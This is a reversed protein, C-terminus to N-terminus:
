LFLYLSPSTTRNMFQIYFNDHLSWVEFSLFWLFSCLMLSSLSMIKFSYNSIYIILDAIDSYNLNDIFSFVNFCLLFYSYRIITNDLLNKNNNWYVVFVINVTWNFLISCYNLGSKCGGFSRQTKPSQFFWSVWTLM